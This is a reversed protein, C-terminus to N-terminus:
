FGSQRQKLVWQENEDYADLLAELAEGHSADDLDVELSRLLKKHKDSVGRCKITHGM